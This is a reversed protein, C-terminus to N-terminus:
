KVFKTLRYVGERAVAVTDNVVREIAPEVKPALRWRFLYETVTARTKVWEQMVEEVMPRLHPEMQKMPEILPLLFEMNKYKQEFEESYVNGLAYIDVKFADYPLEESLEPVLEKGVDGWVLSPEGEAFRMSLGFDIYFYCISRGARPLATVPYMGDPSYHIRVPHYGSPYLPTADMMINAAAVDCHAIRHRHMFVLGELTQDVFEIVDGITGFPPDNCPRLYPMVMLAREPNLPDPLIEHIKVFHNMPDQTSAFFQAIQLEQTHLLFTKIAVHENSSVRTADILQINNSSISDECFMPDLSTGEWSPKWEPSYRPRLLYGRDLLHRYRAQWFLEHPFLDYFGERTRKAHREVGEDDLYAFNPLKKPKDPTSM